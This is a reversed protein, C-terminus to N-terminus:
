RSLANYVEQTEQRDHVPIPQSTGFYEKFRSDSTYVFNGGMMWGVSGANTSYPPYAALFNGFSFKNEKLWLAAEGNAHLEEAEEKTTCLYLMNNKSTIGGATCDVGRTYVFVLLKAMIKILKQNCHNYM